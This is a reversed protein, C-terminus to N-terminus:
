ISCFVLRVVIRLLRSKALCHTTINFYQSVLASVLIRSIRAPTTTIFGSPKLMDRDFRIKIVKQNNPLASVNIDTINGALVGQMALSMGLATLYQLKKIKM